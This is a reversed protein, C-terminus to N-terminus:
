NLTHLGADNAELDTASTATAYVRFGAEVRALAAGVSSHTWYAGNITRLGRQTLARATARLTAGKRRFAIICAGLDCEVGPGQASRGVAAVVDAVNYLRRVVPRKRNVAVSKTVMFRVTGARVLRRAAELSIVAESGFRLQLIENVRALSAHESLLAPDRSAIYARLLPLDVLLDDLRPDAITAFVPVRGNLVDLLLATKDYWPRLPAVRIATSFLPSLEHSDMPQACVARIRALIGSIDTPSYIRSDRFRLGQLAPDAPLLDPHDWGSLTDKTARGGLIEAAAHGTIAKLVAAHRAVGRHLALDAAEKPPLAREAPSLEDLVRRLIRAHLGTAQSAGVAVALATANLSAHLRLADANEVTLNRKRLRSPGRLRWYGDMAECALRLPLGDTGRRPRLLSRGVRTPFASALDQAQMGNSRTRLDELLDHFAGPWWDMVATAAELRALVTKISRQTLAAGRDYRRTLGEARPDAEVPTTAAGGILDLYAMYDNAGVEAFPPSLEFAWDPKPVGTSVKAGILLALNRAVRTAAAPAAAAGAEDFRRGCVCAVPSGVPAAQFVDGCAPCSDVLLCDHVPCAVVQALSWLNRRIGDFRLCEPCFRM